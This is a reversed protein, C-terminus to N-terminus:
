FLQSLSSSALSSPQWLSLWPSGPAFGDTKAQFLVSIFLLAAIKKQNYKKKKKREKKGANDKWSVM